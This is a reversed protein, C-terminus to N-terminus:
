FTWLPIHPSQIHDLSHAAMLQEFNPFLQLFESDTALPWWPVRFSIFSSSWVLCSIIGWLGWSFKPLFFVEAFHTECIWPRAWAAMVIFRNRGFKLMTIMQWGGWCCVKKRIGLTFVARLKLIWSMLSVMSKLFKICGGGRIGDTVTRNM